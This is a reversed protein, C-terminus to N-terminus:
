NQPNCCSEVEQHSHSQVDSSLGAKIRKRGRVRNKRLHTNPSFRLYDAKSNPKKPPHNSGWIASRAPKASDRSKGEALFAPM